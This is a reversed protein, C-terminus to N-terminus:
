SVEPGKFDYPDALVIGNGGIVDIADGDCSPFPPSAVVKARIPFAKMGLELLGGVAALARGQGFTTWHIIAAFSSKQLHQEM